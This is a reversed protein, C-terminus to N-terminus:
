YMCVLTGLLAGCFPAFTQPQELLRMTTNNSSSSQPSSASIRDIMCLVHVLTRIFYLYFTYAYVDNHICYHVSIYIYHHTHLSICIYTHMYHHIYKRHMYRNTPTSPKQVGSIIEVPSTVGITAPRLKNRPSGSKVGESNM